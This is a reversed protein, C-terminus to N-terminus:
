RVTGISLPKLVAQIVDSALSGGPHKADFNDLSKGCKRTPKEAGGPHLSLFSTIDYVQGKYAIYCDAQTSHKAVDAISFVNTQPATTPALVFPSQKPQPPILKTPSSFYITLGLVIGSVALLIDRMSEKQNSSPLMPKAFVFVVLGGLTLIALIPIENFYTMVAMIAHVLALPIAFWIYAHIARWGSKLKRQLAFNSTILLVILVLTAVTGGFTKAGLLKVVSFNFYSQFALLGHFVLLIGSAIGLDRRYQAWKKFHIPVITLVLFGIGIYVTSKIASTGLLTGISVLGMSM